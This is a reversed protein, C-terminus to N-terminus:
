IINMMFEQLHTDQHTNKTSMFTEATNKRMINEFKNDENGTKLATLKRIIEQLQTNQSINNQSIIKGINFFIVKM